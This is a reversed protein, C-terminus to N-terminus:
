KKETDKYFFSDVVGILFTAFPSVIATIFALLNNLGKFKSFGSIFNYMSKIGYFTFISQGIQMFNQTYFNDIKLLRIMFFPIIYLVLWEFSIEWKAYNKFDVAIYIFFVCLIAYDFLFNLSNSSIYELLEKAEATTLHMNEKYANMVLNINKIFEDRLLYTFIGMFFSIVISTIVIRDFKKVNPLKKNFYYYLLEISLYFFIYIALLIPNIITLIIMAVINVAINKKISLNQMKKIKYVPLFFATVPLVLSLLFLIVITLSNLLFM